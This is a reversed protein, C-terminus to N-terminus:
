GKAEFPRGFYGITYGSWDFVVRDGWAPTEGTGVKVDRFSWGESTKEFDSYEQVFKPEYMSGEASAALPLFLAPALVTSVLVSRRSSIPTESHNDDVAWLSTPTWNNTEQLMIKSSPSTWAAVASLFTLCLICAKM